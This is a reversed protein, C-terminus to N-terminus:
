NKRRLVAAFFGDSDQTDPLMRLRKGDGIQAARSSGLIEKAWVEEYEPHDALFADVVEDNERVSLSCTAYILRGSVAVLSAYRELIQRELQPLEQLDQPQLRWRAEPNRRLVGLGSCPADCLVRDAKGQLKALSEPFDGDAGLEIAQVNTLGARRSRERLESLKRRGIDLALLRGRNQMLAGLALTKGGAGACADVVVGRPPPAVLEAILQSGADQLEFCGDKFESLGYANLHTELVLADPAFDLPHSSVNAAKLRSALQDRDNKLRNARVTLPARRNMAALLQEARPRGQEAVLLAVLWDPYSEAVGLRTTPDSIQAIRATAASLKECDLAFSQLARDLTESAGFESHLWALYLLRVPADDLGTALFALRRRWRVMGYIAEGVFRRERSHLKRAGRLARSTTSAARNWDAAARQYIERILQSIKGEHLAEDLAVRHLMNERGSNPQRM